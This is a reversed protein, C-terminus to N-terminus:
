SSPHHLVVLSLLEYSMNVTQHKYERACPTHIARSGVSQAFPHYSVKQMGIANNIEGATKM